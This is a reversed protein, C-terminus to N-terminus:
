FVVAAHVIHAEHEVCHELAVAFIAKCGEVGGPGTTSTEFDGTRKPGILGLKIGVGKGANVLDDTMRWDLRDIEPLDRRFVADM